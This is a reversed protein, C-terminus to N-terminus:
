SNTRLFTRSATASSLGDGTARRGLGRRCVSPEHTLGLSHLPFDGLSRLMALYFMHTSGEPASCLTAPEKKVNKIYYRGPKPPLKVAEESLIFRRDNETVEACFLPRRKLTLLTIHAWDNAVDFSSWPCRSTKRIGGADDGM